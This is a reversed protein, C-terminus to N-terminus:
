KSINKMLESIGGISGMLGTADLPLMIVKSNQGDGIRALADTYKEAVFFNIANIDGEAIAKSVMDTAKADAEAQRERAEAALVVSQKDAEAKLIVAEKHGEAELIQSQREGEAVLISARKEREAKMQNAMADVLDKPPTIDKIEIRTVKVGWPNTALDVINLLRDNINDRQSLMADLELSGLVTRINTMTLNRIAHELHNVEYSAKAADTVIFFCVADITVMANDRSIVEQPPIDLVQEMVNMKHGVGDIVPILYGLGPPLTRTYKGFREITYNYGQPVFKIGKFVFFLVLIVFIVVAIAGINYEM